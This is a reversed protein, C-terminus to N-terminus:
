QPIVFLRILILICFQSHTNQIIGPIFYAHVIIVEFSSAFCIYGSYPVVIAVQPLVRHSSNFPNIKLELVEVVAYITGIRADRDTIAIYFLIFFVGTVTPFLYDIREIEHKM